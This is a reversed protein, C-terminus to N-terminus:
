YYINVYQFAFQNERNNDFKKMIADSMWELQSKAFEITNNAM